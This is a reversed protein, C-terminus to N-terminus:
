VGVVHDQYAEAQILGMFQNFISSVCLHEAMSVASCKLASQWTVFYAKGGGRRSELRDIPKAM